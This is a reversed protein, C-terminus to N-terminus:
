YRYNIIVSHAFTPYAFCFNIFVISEGGEVFSQQTYNVGYYAFRELGEVLLIFMASNVMPRLYHKYENGTVDRSLLPKKDDGSLFEAPVDKLQEVTCINVVLDVPQVKDTLPTTLEPEPYGEPVQEIDIDTELATTMAM